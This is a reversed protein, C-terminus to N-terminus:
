KQQPVVVLGGSWRPINLDKPSKYAWFLLVDSKKTVSLDRIVYRLDIDGVLTEGPKISVSASSPDDVPLLLDIPEGNPRVAAYVMSYRFGWPLDSRYFTVTTAAGSTLIVRLHFPKHQDLEVHIGPQLPNQAVVTSLFGTFLLSILAITRM